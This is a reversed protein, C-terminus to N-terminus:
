EMGVPLGTVRGIERATEVLDLAHDSPRTEITRREGSELWLYLTVQHRRFEGVKERPFHAPSGKVFRSVYLEEIDSFRISETKALFLLGRRRHALRAGTDFIWREDYLSALTCIAALAIPFPLFARGAAMMAVVLAAIGGLVLRIALPFALEVIGDRRNFRYTVGTM